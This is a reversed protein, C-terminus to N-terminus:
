PALRSLKKIAINIRFLIMILLFAIAHADGYNRQSFNYIIWMLYIFLIATFFDWVHYIAGGWVRDDSKEWRNGKSGYRSVIWNFVRDRMPHDTHRFSASNDVVSKGKKVM